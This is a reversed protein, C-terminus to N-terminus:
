TPLKFFDLMSSVKTNKNINPKSYFQLALIDALLIHNNEFLTSTVHLRLIVIMRSSVANNNRRSFLIVDWHNVTTLSIEKPDFCKIQPTNMREQLPILFSYTTRYFKLTFKLLNQAAL